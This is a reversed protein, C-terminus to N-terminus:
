NLREVIMAMGQGGGVCMTELGVTRDMTELGNLLTALIRVGTMGYPHGIAISGGFPNLKEMPIGVERQVALVQAAFAENLEVIDVDDLTMRARKLVQRIAEIPGVGMIAPDLATVSTAVIRARPKLGLAKARSASMVLAAAAGDNLPCSNGATVTGGEKFVPKLARLGELTSDPRPSDDTAMITGDHLPVPIIERAWFGEAQSKKTLEQSRQAYIDQDERSVGYREAVNEATLGMSIYIAPAGDQLFRPNRHDGGQPYRSIFEVGAVVFVDGEGSWIAHAAMRLAQLSSACYRSVTTGPVTDGLGATLALIRGLNYGQEGVPIGCGAIVDEVTDREVEPVRRMLADIIYGGVDDPREDRLRGKRARGVPSRVVDIIVAEEM